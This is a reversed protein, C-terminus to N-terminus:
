RKGVGLTAGVDAGVDTCRKSASDKPRFHPHVGDFFSTVPLNERVSLPITVWPHLIILRLRGVAYYGDWQM